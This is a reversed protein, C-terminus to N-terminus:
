LGDTEKIYTRRSYGCDKCEVTKLWPYLKTELNHPSGNLCDAKQADYTYHISTYFVFNKECNKCEMEYAHDEESGNGDDRDIDQPHECYPCELDTM